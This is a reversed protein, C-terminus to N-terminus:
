KQRPKSLIQVGTYALSGRETAAYFQKVDNQRVTYKLIDLWSKTFLQRNATSLLKQM